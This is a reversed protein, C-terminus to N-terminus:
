AAMNLLFVGGFCCWLTTQSYTRRLFICGNEYKQFSLIMQKTGADASRLYIRAVNFIFEHPSDLEATEISHKLQDGLWRPNGFSAMEKAMM